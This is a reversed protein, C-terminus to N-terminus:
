SSLSARARLAAACLALAHGYDCESIYTGKHTRYDVLEVVCPVHRSYGLKWKFGDPVLTLAADLSETWRPCPEKMGAYPHPKKWEITLIMEMTYNAIATGTKHGLAIAIEEDLGRDPGTAKECREALELLTSM